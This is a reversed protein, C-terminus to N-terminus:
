LNDGGKPHNPTTDQETNSQNRAAARQKRVTYLYYGIAVVTGMVFATENM